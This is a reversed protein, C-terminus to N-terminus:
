PLKSLQLALEKVVGLLLEKKPVDLANVTDLIKDLHQSQMKVIRNEFVLSVPKIDLAASIAWLTKISVNRQGKEIQALYTIHIDARDALQEMSLGRKKRRERISHGLRALREDHM